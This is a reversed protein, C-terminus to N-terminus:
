CGLIARCSRLWLVPVATVGQAGCGSCGPVARFTRWVSGGCRRERRGASTRVVGDAVMTRSLLGGPVTLWMHYELLLECREERDSGDKQCKRELWPGLSGLLRGIRFWCTESVAARIGSIGAAQAVLERVAPARAASVEALALAVRWPKGGPLELELGAEGCGQRGVCCDREGCGGFNQAPRKRVM